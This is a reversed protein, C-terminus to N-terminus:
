YLLLKKCNFIATICNYVCLTGITTTISDDFICQPQILMKIDRSNQTMDNKKNSTEGKMTISM